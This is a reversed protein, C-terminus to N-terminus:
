FRDKRNEQSLSQLSTPVPRIVLGCNHIVCNGAITNHLIGTTFTFVTTKSSLVNTGAVAVVYTENVALGRLTVSIIDYKMVVSTKIDYEMVAINTLPFASSTPDSLDDDPGVASLEVWRVTLHILPRLGPTLVAWSALLSGDTSLLSTSFNAFM